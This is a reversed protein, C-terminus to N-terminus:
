GHQEERLDVSIAVGPYVDSGEHRNANPCSPMSARLISALNMGGIYVTDGDTEVQGSVNVRLAPQQDDTSM